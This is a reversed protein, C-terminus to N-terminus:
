NVQAMKQTRLIDGRSITGNSADYPTHFGTAESDPGRGDPGNSHLRWKGQNMRLRAFTQQYGGSVRAIAYDWNVYWHQATEPAEESARKAFADTPMSSLYSIPTTLPNRGDFPPSQFIGTIEGGVHYSWTDQADPNQAYHYTPYRGNDVMYLELGTAVTRMDAQVRAVKARTQAELFNVVAIGALIAIIAVVILLEILTFGGRTQRGLHVVAIQDAKM